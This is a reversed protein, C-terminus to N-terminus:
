VSRMFDVDDDNEEVKLIYNYCGFSSKGLDDSSIAWGALCLSATLLSICGLSLEAKVKCVNEIINRLSMM